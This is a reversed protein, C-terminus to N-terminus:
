IYLHSIIWSKGVVLSVELVVKMILLRVSDTHHLRSQALILVLLLRRVLRHLILMVKGVWAAGVIGLLVIDVEVSVKFVGQLLLTTVHLVLLGDVVLLHSM